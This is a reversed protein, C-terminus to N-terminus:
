SAGPFPWTINECIAGELFCSTEIIEIEWRCAWRVWVVECLRDRNWGYLLLIKKSDSHIFCKVGNWWLEGMLVPSIWDILRINATQTNTQNQKTHKIKGWRAPCHAVTSRWFGPCSCLHHLPRAKATTCFNRECLCLCTCLSICRHAHLPRHYLSLSLSLHM